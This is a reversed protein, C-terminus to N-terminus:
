GVAELFDVEQVLRGAKKKDLGGHVFNHLSELNDCSTLNGDNCLLSHRSM